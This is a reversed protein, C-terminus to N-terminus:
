RYSLTVVVRRNRARGAETGNTSVANRSGRGVISIPTDGTTKSGSIWEAVARARDLSLAANLARTGTADTYGAVRIAAPHRRLSPLLRNLARRGGRTLAASELAFLVRADLRAIVERRHREIEVPALGLDAPAVEGNNSPFQSLASDYVVLTGGCHKFYAAWFDRLQGALVPSVTEGAEIGAGVAYVRWGTCRFNLGRRALQNIAASKRAAVGRATLNVEVSNLLSGLLVVSVAGHSGELDAALTRLASFVDLRAPPTMKALQAAARRVRSTKCAMDEERFLRNPGESQLHTDVLLNPTASGDGIGNLLLRSHGASAGAIVKELAERRSAALVAAPPGVQDLIAVTSGISATTDESCASTAATYATGTACGSIAAGTATLVALLATYRIFM